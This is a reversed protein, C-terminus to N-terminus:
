IKIVQNYFMNQFAIDDKTCGMHRMKRELLKLANAYNKRGRDFQFAFWARRREEVLSERKLGLIEITARGRPDETGDDHVKPCIIYARYELHEEVVDTYPNLILPEEHCKSQHAIDRKSPDILPFIDGKTKNCTPCVAFLNDWDYALWYYAPKQRRVIEDSYTTKPRYHEVEGDGIPLLSTECYACKGHQDQKLQKKVDEAAYIYSKFHTSDITQGQNAMQTLGVLETAVSAKTLSAPANNHKQWSKM